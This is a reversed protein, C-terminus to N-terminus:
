KDSIVKDLIKGAIEKKPLRPLKTTKGARDILTVEGQDSGFNDPGNAVILDLEKAKLKKKANAILNETELAFGIVKPGEAGKGKAKAIALLIDETPELELELASPKKKLKGKATNRSRYDAVAAAMVVLDTGPLNKLVAQLMEKASEVKVPKIDLPVPLSVNASILTVIAGRDRAAEAIAYGMKGSSHNAVYRVPDLAERTGGATVLVRKGKLDQKPVLLEEIRDVIKEPESMRGIDEDGCALKGEEPGIFQHGLDKLKQLNEQVVPNRWMQYNMAPAILKKANSAMAITSLAEDAIGQTLKGIINATAPAIVLLDAKQALAIHPVPTNILEQDYLDIVVPNGSLTRFTLPGVLKTASNTM